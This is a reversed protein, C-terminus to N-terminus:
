KVSKKTRKTMMSMQPLDVELVEDVVVEDVNPGLDEEVHDDQGVEVCGRRLVDVQRHKLLQFGLVTM